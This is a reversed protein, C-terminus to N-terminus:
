KMKETGVERRWIMGVNKYIVIVNLIGVRTRVRRVQINSNGAGELEQWGVRVGTVISGSARGRGSQRVAM